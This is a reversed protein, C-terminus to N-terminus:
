ILLSTGEDDDDFINVNKSPVVGTSSAPRQLMQQQQAVRHPVPRVVGHQTPCIEIRIPEKGGAPSHGIIHPSPSPQYMKTDGISGVFDINSSSRSVSRSLSERSDEGNNISILPRNIFQRIRQNNSVVDGQFTVNFKEIEEELESDSEHVRLLTIRRTLFKQLPGTPMFVLRPINIFKEKVDKTSLITFYKHRVRDVNKCVEVFREVQNIKLELLINALASSYFNIKYFAITLELLLIDAVHFGIGNACFDAEELNKSIGILLELITFALDINEPEKIDPVDNEASLLIKYTNFLIIKTEIHSAFVQTTKCHNKPINNTILHLSHSFQSLIFGDADVDMLRYVICLLRIYRKEDLNKEFLKMLYHVIIRKSMEDSMMKILEVVKSEPPAIDKSRIVKNLLKQEKTETFGRIAGLLSM